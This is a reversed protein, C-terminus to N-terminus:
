SFFSSLGAHSEVDEWVGKLFSFLTFLGPKFIFLSEPVLEIGAVLPLSSQKFQWVETLCDTRRKEWSHTM